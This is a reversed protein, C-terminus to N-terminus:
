LVPNLTNIGFEVMCGDKTFFGRRIKPGLATRSQQRTARRPSYVDPVRAQRVGTVADSRRFQDMQRLSLITDM